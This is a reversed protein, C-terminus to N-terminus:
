SIISHTIKGQEEQSMITIKMTMTMSIAASIDNDDDVNSHSYVVVTLCPRTFRTMAIMSSGVSAFM